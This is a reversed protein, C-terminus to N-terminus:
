YISLATDFASTKLTQLKELYNSNRLEKFVLNEVSFEGSKKLGSTRMNKIKTKLKKIATIDTSNTEILDDIQKKIEKAKINVAYQDIKDELKDIHKPKLVWKNHVISYVGTATLTDDKLQAYLEVPYNYITIDHEEGWLKKKTDLFDVLDLGCDKCDDVAADIIVHLDIDSFITYNYNALSGTIIIDVIKYDETKLFEYYKNAIKKLKKLVNPKLTQDTKWISTNLHDHYKFVFDHAEFLYQTFTIM